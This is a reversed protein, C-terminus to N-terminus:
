LSSSFSFRASLHNPSFLSASHLFLLCVRRGVILHFFGPTPTSIRTTIHTAPLQSSPPLHTVCRNVKRLSLQRRFPTASPRRALFFNATSRSLGPLTAAPPNSKSPPTSALDESLLTRAWRAAVGPMSRALSVSRDGSGPGKQKM